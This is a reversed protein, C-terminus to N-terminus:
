ASRPLWEILQVQLVDNLALFQDLAKEYNSNIKRGEQIACNLEAILNAAVGIDVSSSRSRECLDDFFSLEIEDMIAGENGVFFVVAPSAPAAKETIPAVWKMAPHFSM